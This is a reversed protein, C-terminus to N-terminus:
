MGCCKLILRFLELEYDPTYPNKLEGSVMKAFALLMDAYRHLMCRSSKGMDGWSRSTYETMDTYLEYKNMKSNYMELPKLEITRDSGTVVIQRRAYGGFEAADSKIVATGNNYELVTMAFDESFVGSIGTQKNFVSVSNPTGMITLAIDIMHCGLYFMMGGRFTRLWERTENSHICNMQAEISHIEGLEGLRARKIIDAVCPNYRYMYGTHFVKGSQKVTRILEEFEDLSQSGPKEMHVHKGHAAALTAYKTLHIEDTEIVVAEISEDNLIEDLSFEQYGSFVNCREAIEERENGVLAYGVIEFVDPFQKMTDFIQMGHGHASMGIQAIRIRRM